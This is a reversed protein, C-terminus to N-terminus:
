FFHKSSTTCNSRLMPKLATAVDSTLAAVLPFNKSCNRHLQEEFSFMSLGKVLLNKKSKSGICITFVNVM